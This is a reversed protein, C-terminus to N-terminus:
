KINKNSNITKTGKNILKKKINPSLLIQTKQKYLNKIKDFVFNSKIKKGNRKSSYIKNNSGLNIYKNSNFLIKNLNNNIYYININKNAYPKFISNDKLINFNFKRNFKQIINRIELNNEYPAKNKINNLCIKNYNDM